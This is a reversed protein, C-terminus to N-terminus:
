ENRKGARAGAKAGVGVLTGVGVLPGVSGGVSVGAGDGVGVGVSVGVGPGVRGGVSVGVGPGVGIGVSVGVGPGVGTGVVGAGTCSVTLLTASRSLAYGPSGTTKLMPNLLLPPAGTDTVTSSVTGPCSASWLTHCVQLLPEISYGDGPRNM